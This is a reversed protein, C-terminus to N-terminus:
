RWVIYGFVIAIALASVIGILAVIAVIIIWAPLKSRERPASRLDSFDMEDREFEETIVPQAEINPPAAPPKDSGTQRKKLRDPVITSPAKPVEGSPQGGVRGDSRRFVPEPMKWGDSDAAAPKEAPALEPEYTKHLDDNM